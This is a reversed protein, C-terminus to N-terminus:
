GLAAAALGPFRMLKPARPRLIAACAPHDCQRHGTADNKLDQEDDREESDRSL